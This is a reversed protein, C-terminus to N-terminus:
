GTGQNGLECARSHLRELMDFLQRREEGSLPELLRRQLEIALPRIEDHIARGLPTLSLVLRRRDAENVARDILGSAVARAVARSVQVKDMATRDCAENASLPGFRALVAMIRWEAVTLGFREEYLSALARSVTNTLVSLQYPLFAELALASPPATVLASDGTGGETSEDESRISFDRSLIVGAPKHLVRDLQASCPSCRVVDQGVRRSTQVVNANGAEM